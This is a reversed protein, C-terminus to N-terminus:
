AAEAPTKGPPASIAALHKEAYSLLDPSADEEPASRLEAVLQKWGEVDFLGPDPGLMAM